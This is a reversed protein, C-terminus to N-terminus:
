PQDETELGVQERQRLQGFVEREIARRTDDDVPCVYSHRRGVRDTRTPFSLAYRGDATRRLVIGGLVLRGYRLSLYGM